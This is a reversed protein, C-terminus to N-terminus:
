MISMEFMLGSTPARLRGNDCTSWTRSAVKTSRSSQAHTHTHRKKRKLQDMEQSTREPVISQWQLNGVDSKGICRCPCPSCCGVSRTKTKGAAKEAKEKKKKKAVNWLLLQRKMSGEVRKNM